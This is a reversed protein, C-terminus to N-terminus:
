YRYPEASSYCTFVRAIYTMTPNIVDYLHQQPPRPAAYILKSMEKRM